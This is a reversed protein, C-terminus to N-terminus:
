YTDSSNLGHELYLAGAIDAMDGAGDPPRQNEFELVNSEHKIHNFFLVAKFCDKAKERDLLPTYIRSSRKYYVDPDPETNIDPM